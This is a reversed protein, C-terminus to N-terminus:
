LRQGHVMFMLLAFRDPGTISLPGRIFQVFAASFLLYRTYRIPCFLLIDYQASAVKVLNRNSACVNLMELYNQIGSIKLKVILPNSSLYMFVCVSKFLGKEIGSM